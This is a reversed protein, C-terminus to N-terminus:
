FLWRKIGYRWCSQDKSTWVKFERDFVEYISENIYYDGDVYMGHQHKEFDNWKLKAAISYQILIGLNGHLLLLLMQTQWRFIISIIFM